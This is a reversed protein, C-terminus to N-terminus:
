YLNKFAFKTIPMDLKYKDSLEMVSKLSEIGEVLYPYNKLFEAKDSQHIVQYGFKTNRSTQSYCTLVLDGLVGDTLLASTTGGLAKSLTLIENLGRTILSARANKKYGMSEYMGSCIATINKIAGAVQLTIIDDTTNVIFKSSNLSQAIQNAIKADESGITAYTLLGQAVEIAFNPGSLIAVPNPFLTNIKDSILEIPDHLIGKTAVLLIVNSPLNALKLQDLVQLVASSPVAIVILDSDFLDQIDSSAIINKPLNINPLYKSNTRNSAIEELISKNRAFLKVQKHISSVHCSIATGWSGAGLVAINKIKNM